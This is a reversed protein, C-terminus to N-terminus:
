GFNVGSIETPAIAIDKFYLKKDGTTFDARAVLDKPQCYIEATNGNKDLSSWYRKGDKKCELKEARIKQKKRDDPENLSGAIEIEEAIDETSTAPPTALLSALATADTPLSAKLEDVVRQSVTSNTALTSMKEIDKLTNARIWNQSAYIQAPSTQTLNAPCITNPISTTSYKTATVTGGSMGLCRIEAATENPLKTSDVIALETHNADKSLSISTGRVGVIFGNTGFNIGTSTLVRGWIAGNAVVLQPVTNGSLAGRTIQVTTGADIRALSTPDALFALSGTQTASTALTDGAYLAAGSSAPVNNVLM